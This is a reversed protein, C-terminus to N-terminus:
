FLYEFLVLKLKVYEKRILKWQKQIWKQIKLNNYRYKKIRELIFLYIINNIWYNAIIQFIDIYLAHDFPTETTIHEVLKSCITGKRDRKESNKFKERVNTAGGDKEVQSGASFNIYTNM